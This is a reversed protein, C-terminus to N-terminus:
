TQILSLGPVAMIDVVKKDNVLFFNCEEKGSGYAAGRGPSDPDCRDPVVDKSEGNGLGFGSQLMCPSPATARRDGCITRLNNAMHIRSLQLTVNWLIQQSEKGNEEM